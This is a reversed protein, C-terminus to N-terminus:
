IPLSMKLAPRETSSHCSKRGKRLLRCSTMTQAEYVEIRNAATEANDDDRQILPSRRM